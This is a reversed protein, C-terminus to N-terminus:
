PSKRYLSPKLIVCYCSLDVAPPLLGWLIEWTTKLRGQARPGPHAPHPGPTLPSSSAARGAVSDCNGVNYDPHISVFTKMSGVILCKVDVPRLEDSVLALCLKRRPRQQRFPAWVQREMLFLGLKGKRSKLDDANLERRRTSSIFQGGENRNQFFQPEQDGNKVIIRATTWVGNHKGGGHGHQTVFTPRIPESTAKKWSTITRRRRRAFAPKSAASSSRALNVPSWRMVDM